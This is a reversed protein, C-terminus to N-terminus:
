VIRFRTGVCYRFFNYLAKEREAEMIKMALNGTNPLVGFNNYRIKLVEAIRYTLANKRTNKRKSM